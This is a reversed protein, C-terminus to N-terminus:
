HKRCTNKRSRPAFKPIEKVDKSLSMALLSDFSSAEGCLSCKFYVVVFLWFWSGSASLKGDDLTRSQSHVFKARCSPLTISESFWTCHHCKSVGNELSRSKGLSSKFQKFPDASGHRQFFHDESRPKLFVRGSYKEVFKKIRREFDYSRCTSTNQYCNTYTHTHKNQTCTYICVHM